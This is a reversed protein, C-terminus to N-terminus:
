RLVGKTPAQAANTQDENEETVVKINCNKLLWESAWRRIIPRGDELALSMMEAIPAASGGRQAAFEKAARQFAEMGM